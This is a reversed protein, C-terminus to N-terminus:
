RYRELTSRRREAQTAGIEYTCNRMRHFRDLDDRRLPHWHIHMNTLGLCIRFFKDYNEESWRWKRELVSWLGRARGFYNEVTIRDSSLKGNYREETLSLRQNPRKKIPHIVRLFEASGQYGKDALLGWHNPFEMALPDLDNHNREDRNKVLFKGHVNRM